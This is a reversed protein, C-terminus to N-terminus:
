AAWAASRMHAIDLLNPFHYDSLNSDLLALRLDGVLHFLFYSVRPRHPNPGLSVETGASPNHDVCQAKRTCAETRIQVRFPLM